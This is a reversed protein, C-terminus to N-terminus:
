ALWKPLALDPYRERLLERLALNSEAYFGRLDLQEKAGLEPRRQPSTNVTNYAARALRRAFPARNLMPELRRNTLTALTRLWPVRHFRSRNEIRFVYDGYIGSDLGLDTCLRGMFARVDAALDEYFRVMIRDADFVELYQALMPAYRGKVLDAGDTRCGARGAAAALQDALFENLPLDTAPDGVMGQRSRYHSVFRAAPDRLLLMIRPNHLLAQMRSATVRGGDLYNPTAELWVSRGERGAPFLAEFEARAAAGAYDRERSFFGTEKRLTPCVDPHDSLYRFVSTTGCKNSGAIILELPATM